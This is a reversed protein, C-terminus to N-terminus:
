HHSNLANYRCRSQPISFYINSIFPSYPDPLLLLRSELSSQLQSSSQHLTWTESVGCAVRFSVSQFSHIFSILFLLHFLSQDYFFFIIYRDMDSPRIQPSAARVPSFNNPHNYLGSM